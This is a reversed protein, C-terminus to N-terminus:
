TSKKAQYSKHFVLAHFLLDDIGYEDHINRGMLSFELIPM